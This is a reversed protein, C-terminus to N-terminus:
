WRVLTKESSANVARMELRLTKLRTDLYNKLIVLLRSILIVFYM